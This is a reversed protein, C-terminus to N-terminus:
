AKPLVKAAAFFGDWPDTKLSALRAPMNNVTFYDPGIAESLESWALPASVAAGPRARTSYPAVATAGRGNRLYDIFIRGRRKAKTAVALYRDPDKKAADTALAKAFAKVAPWGASPKLPVVVHLGKGGSTKVFAALGKAEIEGKLLLAAEIIEAWSVDEGPDLDMTIMDPKEWNRTTTGWPHIELAASQVLAILGDFDTIRLSPEGTKDKPDKIQDIAKNIGRWAHKQFFRQKGDIGDPCRLLSLPRDVVYPAMFSWVQAYYEALGQKTVGEKPWYVRDPHTLTIAAKPLAPSTRGKEAAPSEQRVESAPKDERLGRFSAHRLNGDASWARFEVEAVLTPEVYHLGRRADATLKDRFPSDSREIASLAEFLMDATAHSFGTGVRGVHRLAGDEYVGLALAGIAHDSTSSPAYGGIVFEQRESCKSKVWSGKRGSVYLGSREKSVVGELSLRCAHTLVLDGNDEFHESFRVTPSDALILKQLLNKRDILTAKTLDHGDLHLIDFAYYIFRDSRGLSLDEQLASFDSAGNDKHVVIEGDILATEVPLGTFAAAVQDGFRETWDLGSRTLLRVKGKEIRAQLRYGDFKIEHVWRDGSPAKPKLTALAPEVFGPLVAKRAGKPWAHAQGEAATTVKAPKGRKANSAKSTSKSNWTDGPNKAVDKLDRGSKVSEPREKLIDFSDDRAAEDDGKILLWNERTEGPKGHMRVLHWRGQLKEGDLTFELHGKAYAKALDGIPTWTGRDWVIVTGGGYQGKPIVGEFDRYSLPHDEVHVALRKDEPNLSPGKTVAWSKLVGDMEVRFDYHLRTADHKQIVFSASDTAAKRKAAKAAEGKPEPTADFRRKANYTDLSM